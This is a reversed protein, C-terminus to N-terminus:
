ILRDLANLRDRIQDNLRELSGLKVKLAGILGHHVPTGGDEPDCATEPSPSLKNIKSQLRNSVSLLREIESTLVNHIEDLESLEYPENSKKSAELESRM